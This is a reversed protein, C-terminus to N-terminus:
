GPYGAHALVASCVALCLASSRSHKTADLRTLDRRGGRRGGRRRRLRSLPFGHRLRQASRQSSDACCYPVTSIREDSEDSESQSPPPDAIQNPEGEDVDSVPSYEARRRAATRDDPTSSGGNSSTPSYDNEGIYWTRYTIPGYCSHCGARLIEADDESLPSMERNLEADTRRQGSGRVAHDDSYDSSKCTPGCTAGYMTAFTGDDEVTARQCLANDRTFLSGIALAIAVTFVMVLVCGADPYHLDWLFYEIQETIWAGGLGGDSVATLLFVDDDDVAAKSSALAVSLAVSIAMVLMLVSIVTDADLDFTPIPAAAATEPTIIEYVPEDPLCQMEFLQVDAVDVEVEFMPLGDDGVYTAVMGVATDDVTADATADTALKPPCLRRLHKKDCKVGNIINSCLDMGETWSAPGYIKRKPTGDSGDTGIGKAPARQTRKKRNSDQQAPPASSDPNHRYEVNRDVNQQKGSTGNDRRSTVKSDFEHDISPCDKHVHGVGNCKACKSKTFVLMASGDNVGYTGNLQSSIAAVGPSNSSSNSLGALSSDNSNTEPFKKKAQAELRDKINTYMRKSVEPEEEIYDEAKSIQADLANNDGSTDTSGVLKQLM